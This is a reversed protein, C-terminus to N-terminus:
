DGASYREVEDFSLVGFQTARDLFSILVVISEVPTTACFLIIVCRKDSCGM